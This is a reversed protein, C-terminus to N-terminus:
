MVDRSSSSGATLIISIVTLHVVKCGDDSDAEAAAAIHAAPAAQVLPHHAPSGQLLSNKFSLALHRKLSSTADHLYAVQLRSTYMYVYKFDPWMNVILGCPLSNGVHWRANCEFASAPSQLVVAQFRRLLM